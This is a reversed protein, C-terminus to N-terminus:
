RTSWWAIDDTGPDITEGEQEFETLGEDDVGNLGVSYLFFGEDDQAYKLPRATFPDLPVQDLFDPAVVDLAEPYTGHEAKYLTLAFALQALAIRAEAKTEEEKVRVMPPALVSGLVEGMAEGGIRFKRKGLGYAEARLRDMEARAEPYPTEAVEVLPGLQKLIGLEIKPLLGGALWRLAPSAVPMTQLSRRTVVREGKFAWSLDRGLSDGATKLDQIFARCIEPGPQHESLITEASDLSQSVVALRVLFPLLVPESALVQSVLLGTRSDELAGDVDGDRLRLLASWRLLRSVQRMDNLHELPVPSPSARDPEFRCREMYAAQRLLELPESCKELMERVTATAEESWDAPDALAAAEQLSAHFQDFGCKKLLDFAEQYVLAANESPPDIEPPWLEELTLPDGAARIADLERQLANRARYSWVQHVVVAVILLVLFALLARKVWRKWRKPRDQESM